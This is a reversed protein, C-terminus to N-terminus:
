SGVKQIYKVGVLVGDEDEFESRDGFDLNNEDLCTLCNIVIDKFANGMHYPLRSGALAVLSEKTARSDQLASDLIAIGLVGAPVASDDDDGYVLFSDWLGIELLCVGLSYIDHQMCYDESPAVGQRDPHRYLDKTWASDGQRYTRGDATRIHEYGILYLTGLSSTSSDFEIFNEPRVNKHVFGLTHVFSIANAIQRAFAFRDTLSHSTRRNLHHRLSQPRQTTNTPTDFVMSFGPVTSRPDRSRIIGRCRLINFVSPEVNSLKTALERLDKAQLDQDTGNYPVPDVVIWKSSKPRPMFKAVSHAIPEASTYSLSDPPLFIRKTTTSQAGIVNRMMDSKHVTADAPPCILPQDVVRSGQTSMRMILYWTPDFTSQWAQLETICEDLSTKTLVYKWQAVELLGTQTARGDPKKLVADLKTWANKLKGVLIEVTAEQIIRYELKLTSEIAKLFDLQESIRTWLQLVRIFREDVEPGANRFSEYTKM